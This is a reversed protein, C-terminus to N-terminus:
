VRATWIRRSARGGGGPKFNLKEKYLVWEREGGLVKKVVQPIEVSCLTNWREHTAVFEELRTIKAGKGPINEPVKQSPYQGTTDYLVELTITRIAEAGVEVDEREILCVGGKEYRGGYRSWECGDRVSVMGGPVIAERCGVDEESEGSPLSSSPLGLMELLAEESSSSRFKSMKTATPPTPLSAFCLLPSPPNKEFSQQLTQFIIAVSPRVVSSSCKINM